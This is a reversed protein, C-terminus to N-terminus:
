NEHLLTEITNLLPEVEAEWHHRLNFAVRGREGLQSSIEPNNILYIISTALEEANEMNIALGCEEKEVIRVIESAYKPVIVPIGAAMYEFLRNPLSDVGLEKGYAILGVHSRALEAQMQRFPMGERLDVFSNLDNVELEGKFIKYEESEEPYQNIMLVECDVNKVKIRKLAELVVPTGRSIHNKGHVITFSSKKQFHSVENFDLAERPLCSRVVLSNKNYKNYYNLVTLSVGVVVDVRRVIRSLVFQVIGSFLPYLVGKIRRALLDKHYVEHIDFVVKIKKKLNFITLLFAADPDPVYVLDIDERSGLKKLAKRIGAVRGLLNPSIDYTDWTISTDQNSNEFFRYNPGIWVVNYTKAFTLAMKRYVRVDDTPHATTFICITKKLPVRRM